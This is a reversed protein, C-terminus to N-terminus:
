RDHRSAHNTNRLVPFIFLRDFRIAIINSIAKPPFEPPMPRQERLYFFVVRTCARSIHFPGNQNPLHLVVPRFVFVRQGFQPFQGHRGAGADAGFEQRHPGPRNRGGIEALPLDPLKGAQNPNVTRRHDNKIVIDARDLFPIDFPDHFAADQVTRPENEIDKGLTCGGAFALQLNFQCLQGM